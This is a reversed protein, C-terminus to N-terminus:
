RIIKQFKVVLNVSTPNANGSMGNAILELNGLYWAINAIVDGVFYAYHTLTFEDGNLEIKYLDQNRGENYLFTLKDDKLTYDYIFPFVTECSYIVKGNKDFELNAANTLDYTTMKSNVIGALTTNGYTVTGTVSVSTWKGVLLNKKNGEEKGCSSLAVACLALVAMALGPLGITKFYNKM